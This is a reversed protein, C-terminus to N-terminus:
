GQTKSLKCYYFGDHNDNLPLLQIGYETQFYGQSANIPIELPLIKISEPDGATEIFQRIVHDNEEPLVSCTVYLLTGNQELLPWLNKLIQYQLQQLKELDQPTRHWKIDPQKRLIGFGSCPADILIRSFQLHKYQTQLQPNKADEVSLNIKHNNQHYGYFALNEALQNLRKKDKDWAYLNIKPNIDLLHITKGGPAACADLVLANPNLQQIDLCIAAWQAGADQVCFSANAYAPLHQVPRNELLQIADKQLPFRKYPLNQAALELVFANLSLGRFRLTLAPEKLSAQLITTYSDPYHERMKQLLWAPCAYQISSEFQSRPPLGTRLYNRILANVLKKAWIAQITKCLEVTEFGLAHPAFGLEIQALGLICILEIAHYKPPLPKKLKIRILHQFYTYHRLVHLCLQQVLARDAPSLNPDLRNKLEKWSRGQILIQTLLNLALVRAM